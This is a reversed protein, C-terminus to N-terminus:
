SFPCPSDEEREVNIKNQKKISVICLPLPLLSSINLGKIYPKLNTIISKLSRDNM